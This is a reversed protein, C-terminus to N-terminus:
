DDIGREYKDQSRKHLDGAPGQSGSLHTVGVPTETVNVFAWLQFVDM